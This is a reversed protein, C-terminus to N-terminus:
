SLTIVTHGFGDDAPHFAGVGLSPNRFLLSAVDTGGSAVQLLGTASTYNLTIGASAIDKLDISDGAGFDEILPGTYNSQGVNTGFLSAADIIAESPALFAIQNASGADAAIELSAGSNLEFLGASAPDIETTVDLSGGTAVALTGDNLVTGVTDSGTLTWNAGSDAAVSGFGTFSSGVGGISGVSAGEGQALELTNAGSGALVDGNFVAGPIAVLLNNASNSFDVAAFAGSITGANTITGGSGYVAVGISSAAISGDAANSVNGGSSLDLGINGIGTISGANAVTAAGGTVFVGFAGGTISGSSANSVNGGAEIDLAAGASATGSIIGANFVTASGGQSFVGATTGSIVAGAHNTLQGGNELGIGHTGTVLGDNTITAAAGTSFIGFSGGMISGGTHNILSGGLAFDAGAGSASIKGSNTVTGGSSVYAGNTGGIISGSAANTISGGSGIIAGGYKTASISGSNAITGSAGTIFAGFWAGSISASANNTVDGGDDLFV